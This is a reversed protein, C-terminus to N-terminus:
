PSPAEPWASATDVLLNILHRIAPGAGDSLIPSDCLMAIKFIEDIADAAFLLHDANTTKADLLRRLKQAISFLQSGAIPRDLALKIAAVHNACIASRHMAEVEHPQYVTVPASPDVLQVTNWRVPHGRDYDHGHKIAWETSAEQTAFPGVLWFRDRCVILIHHTGPDHDCRPSDPLPSPM